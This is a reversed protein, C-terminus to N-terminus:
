DLTIDLEGTKFNVTDGSDITKSTALSAHGLMNGGVAADMIAMHTIVGWSATATVFDFQVGNSKTTPTTGTAAPFNTANNAVALRAYSGGGPETLGSGDDLPDATSLALYLTAPAAYAANGFVHDLLEKELYDGFSSM